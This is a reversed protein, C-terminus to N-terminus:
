DNNAMGKRDGGQIPKGTEQAVRMVPDYASRERETARPQRGRAMQAIACLGRQHCLVLEWGVGEAVQDRRGRRVACELGPFSHPFM